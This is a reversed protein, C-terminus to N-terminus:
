FNNQQHVLYTYSEIEIWINHEIKKKKVTFFLVMALVNASLKRM